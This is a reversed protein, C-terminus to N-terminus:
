QTVSARRMMSCTAPEQMMRYSNSEGCHLLGSVEPFRTFLGSSSDTCLNIVDEAALSDTAAFTLVSAIVFTKWKGALDNELSCSDRSDLLLLLPQIWRDFRRQGTIENAV